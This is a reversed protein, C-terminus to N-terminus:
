RKARGTSALFSHLWGGILAPSADTVTAYLLRGCLTAVARPFHSLRAPQELQWNGLQM